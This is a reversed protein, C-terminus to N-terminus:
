GAGGEYGLLISERRREFWAGIESDTTSCGFHFNKEDWKTDPEIPNKISKTDSFYVRLVFNEFGINTLIADGTKLDKTTNGVVVVINSKLLPCGDYTNEMVEGFHYFHYRNQMNHPIISLIHEILQQEAGIVSIYFPRNRERM